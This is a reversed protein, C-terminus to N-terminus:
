NRPYPPKRRKRWAEADPRLAAIESQLEAIQQYAEALAEEVNERPMILASASVTCTKKRRTPIGTLITFDFRDGWVEQAWARLDDRFFFKGFDVSRLKGKRVAYQIRKRVRDEARRRPESPKIDWKAILRTAKARSLKIRVTETAM